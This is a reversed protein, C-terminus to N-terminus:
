GWLVPPQGCLQGCMWLTIWAARHTIWVSVWSIRGRCAQSLGEGDSLVPRNTGFSTGSKVPGSWARKMEGLGAGWSM